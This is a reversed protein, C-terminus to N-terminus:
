GRGDPPRTNWEPESATHPGGTDGAQAGRIQGDTETRPAADAAPSGTSDVSPPNALEAALDRAPRTGDVGGPNEMPSPVLAPNPPVQALQFKLAEVPSPPLLDAPMHFPDPANQSDPDLNSSAADVPGHNAAIEASFRPTPRPAAHLPVSPAAPRIAPESRSDRQSPGSWIIGALVALGLASVAYIFRFNATREQVSRRRPQRHKWYFAKYTKLSSLAAAVKTAAAM